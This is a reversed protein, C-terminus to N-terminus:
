YEAKGATMGANPLYAGMASLRRQLRPVDIARPSLTGEVALAAAMGAAQGTIFCGPMVRLSSQVARDVSICRGAVLLNGVNRPLLSRYPIGYSEGDRLPNNRLQLHAAFEEPSPASTHIDIWYNYRGIEDPFVARATYDAQNLVYDGMIRRSERVGPLSGTILLSLDAYGTLYERYFREYEAQGRRGRLLAQTLSREDTGDVDFTHVLNGGAITRGVPYMGPLHPDEVTFVGDAFARALMAEHNQQAANVASWDVGTWLSCLSGPMMQGHADGLEFPAGAWACVDGDGTCDIVVAAQVAFLGSKGTCLVYAVRDGDMEVGITQTLFSFDIGAEVALDDYVRKLAEVRYCHCYAAETYQTFPGHGDVQHLRESLERGFGDAYFHQHDGFPVFLPLLGATGMGGFCSHGEALFVRCGQRAATVAAAMGAPGGGVVMVDVTHRVPVARQVQITTGM